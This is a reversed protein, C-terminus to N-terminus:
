LLAVPMQFDDRVMHPSVYSETVGEGLRNSVVYLPRRRVEELVKSLYIAVLGTCFIQAGAATVVVASIFAGDIALTTRVHLALWLVLFVVGGGFLSAGLLAILYLPIVSFSLLGDLALGCLKRLSYASEGNERAGREIPIAIQRFGLWPVLGRLFRTREPMAKLEDIVKRDILRFDGTDWPIKISSVLGLLRYFLFASFRKLLKDRRTSRRAFVVEYGQRWRKVMEPILEPPDQLDSDLSILAQGVAHDIGATIAAQQGFNRSLEILKLHKSKAVINRLTDTTRAQSGDNVFVIEYKLKEGSIVKDLREVLLHLNRPDENYVAVV